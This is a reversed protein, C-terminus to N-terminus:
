EVSVIYYYVPQGGFQLEVDVDPFKEEIKSVVAEAAAEEIDAGYYVSILEAEDSMMSEIMELLTEDMDTGVAALGKDGLGLYNDKKIEKGDISTDRVAYTLQGSKVTSLSDTMADGNDKASRTTEFNIMATIGQPVTKTPIVILEKDEVISAAQNAALIINSNNPLVYITKANIKDAANLIDETSPNMTQGGEIVEDVGLGKFIEAIGSGPAITIFGFDKAPEAKKQEAESNKEMAQKAAAAQLESQAVVKQNHEERMNDVKMKTLQGYELAKEFAQGPHNTHVHVKVIDDLAVCVISDGISTLFAKFDAETKEDFEKDLMIIFETCYGFKIDVNEVAAGKGSGPVTQETSPKSETISFDTVKGTLADYMGKLVVVLGQGGSDVVGAEKLVPLMEPTSDLVADGYEIVEDCFQELSMDADACERAKTAVGKAVTLITGEKPKMVAKYATEVAKQFADAIDHVDISRSDQVKKSFGRLLQSLIVGSNGRAGRLSGTSMAKAISKMDDPAAEVERVASLITLTMNTGTDGDPVPFVNLENIYEKNKDLNNAGAIFAKKLTLADITNSM